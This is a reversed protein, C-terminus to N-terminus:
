WSQFSFLLKYMIGSVRCSPYFSKEDLVQVVNGIWEAGCLGDSPSGSHEIAGMFTQLGGSPNAKESVKAPPDIEEEFSREERTSLECDKANQISNVSSSGVSLPKLPINTHVGAFPKEDVNKISSASNNGQNERADPIKIDSASDVYNTDATGAHAPSWLGSSGNATM